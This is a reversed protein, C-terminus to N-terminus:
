DQDGPSGEPWLTVETRRSIQELQRLFTGIPQLYRMHIRATNVLTCISWFEQYAVFSDLSRFGSYARCFAGRQAPTMPWQRWCRALDYDFAGLRLDENDIIWVEGGPKMVMNRPHFDTHTIGTELETAERSTARVVLQKATEPDIHGAEGLLDLQLKSRGSYWGMDPSKRTSAERPVERSHLTGLITALERTLDLSVDALEVQSGDIWEEITAAGHAALIRSFPLGALSPSLATVSERKEQSDFRRAKVTRGDRLQLRFCAHQDGPVWLRTIEEVTAIESGLSRVAELIDSDPGPRFPEATM